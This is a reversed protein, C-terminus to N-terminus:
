KELCKTCCAVLSFFRPEAAARRGLFRVLAPPGSYVESLRMRVVLYFLMMWTMCIMPPKFYQGCYSKTVEAKNLATRRGSSKKMSEVKLATCVMVRIYYYMQIGAAARPSNPNKGTWGIEV